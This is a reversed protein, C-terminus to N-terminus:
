KQSEWTERALRSAHDLSDFTGADTWWGKIQSWTLEGRALYANNVDTIELEGRKSPKLTAIVDFVKDDYCYIGTVALNSRPQKPKEEIGVIRDGQVEAVGYRGPDHVEKLLLSAGAAQKAFADVHARHRSRFREPILVDLPQGAIEGRPWGFVTEAAANFAVIRQDADVTVIADMASEFLLQARQSM